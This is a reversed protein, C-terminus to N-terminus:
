CAGMKADLLTMELPPHSIHHSSTSLTYYVILDKGGSGKDARAGDRARARVRLARARARAGEAGAGEGVAM